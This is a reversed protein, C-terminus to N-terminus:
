KKRNKVKGKSAEEQESFLKKIAEEEKSLVEESNMMKYELKEKGESTLEIHNRSALSLLGITLLESSESNKNIYAAMMPSVDEPISFSPVIARKEPNKGYLKWTVGMYILLLLLSISVTLLNTNLKLFMEVKDLATIKIKSTEM